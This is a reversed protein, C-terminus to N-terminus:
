KRFKTGNGTSFSIFHLNFFSIILNIEHSFMNVCIFHLILRVIHFTISHSTLCFLDIIFFFVTAIILFQVM